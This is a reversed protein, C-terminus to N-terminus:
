ASDAFGIRMKGYDFITHYAGMFVDGLIRRRNWSCSEPLCPRRCGMSSLWPFATEEEIKSVVSPRGSPARGSGHVRQHLARRVGRRGQPRVAGCCSSPRKLQMGNSSSVLESGSSVLLLPEPLTLNVQDPRLEFARGGISFAVTQLSGVRGCDVRSGVPDPM